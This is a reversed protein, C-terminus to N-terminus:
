NTKYHDSNNPDHSGNHRRWKSDKRLYADAVFLRCDDRVTRALVRGPIYILFEGHTFSLTQNTMFLWLIVSEQNTTTQRTGVWHEKSLLINQLTDFTLYIALIYTIYAPADMGGKLGHHM